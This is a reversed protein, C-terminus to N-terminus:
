KLKLGKLKPILILLEDEYPVLAKTSLITSRSYWMAIAPFYLEYHCWLFKVLFFSLVMLSILLDETFPNSKKGNVLSFFFFFSKYLSIPTLLFPWMSKVYRFLCYLDTIQDVININLRCNGEMSPKRKKNWGIFLHFIYNCKYM